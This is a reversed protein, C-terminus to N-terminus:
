RAAAFMIAEATAEERSFDTIISGDRVVLIRDSISLVEPLYSSIVAVAKGGAALERIADHIQPIAGVDVGRTPEDFFIVDPEQALAKALVVKQQNGGSYRDIRSRADLVTVSLKDAWRKWLANSCRRSYLVRRLWRKAQAGLYINDAATMTQFFGDTKRDETIYVIGDRIAAAPSRHNVPMGNLLIRGGSPDRSMVGAAVKAIETRGSGVLGAFGVVEGAHLAFSVNRVAGGGATVEELVLRAPGRDSRKARETSVAAPVDRGVMLRVLAQRDLSASPGTQVLRGDRLVTVRDSIELAEELAHTVFVVGVGRDRLSRALRFFGSVEHPTLSATPEDFLILRAKRRVARAIEVMQRKATGLGAVLAVPDVDFDLSALLDRAEEEISRHSAIWAETGLRLNQAVTMTPILSTEQYVMVIGLGLSDAPSDFRRERGEFILKGASLPIAGAIIKSLTSKGAGNEGLLAHIEGPRVDFDIGDLAYIGGYIKSASSIQLLSGGAQM